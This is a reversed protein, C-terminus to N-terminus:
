LKLGDFLDKLEPNESRILNWKWERHWNKLQKERSIAQHIDTFEEFYLLLKLKYKRTFESGEGNKHELTRRYLDSTVGIYLVNRGINSLMYVYSNKMNYLLRLGQFLNLTVYYGGGDHQVRKLM